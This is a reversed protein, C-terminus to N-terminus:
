MLELAADPAPELRVNALRNVVVYGTEAAVGAPVFEPLVAEASRDGKLELEKKYRLAFGVEGESPTTLVVKVEQANVVKEAVVDPAAVVTVPGLGEPLRVTLATVPARYVKFRFDVVGELKSDTFGAVHCTDVFVVPTARGAPA